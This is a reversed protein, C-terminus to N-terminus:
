WRSRGRKTLIEFIAASWAILDCVMVLFLNGPMNRVPIQEYQTVVRFYRYRNTLVTGWSLLWFVLGLQGFILPLILMLLLGSGIISTMVGFLFHYRDNYHFGWIILNKLWRIQQQIYRSPSEPYQTEVFSERIFRIRFGAKRLQLALFYDTGTKVSQEFNWGEALVEKKLACNGGYLGGVYRSSQKLESFRQPIWQQIEFSQSFLEPLPQYIGSVVVEEKQSIPSIIRIFSESNLICDADTLYIIQGEAVEFGRRLAKQKGEGPHQTLVKVMEGSFAQALRFTGDEGGAVLILEKHPYQLDLFSHIHREILEAENWAAVLVSVLPVRAWEAITPPLPEAKVQKLIQKDRQWQHWQFLFVLAVGLLFIWGAYENALIIWKGLAALISPQGSAGM